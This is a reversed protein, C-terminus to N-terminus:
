GRAVALASLTGRSLVPQAAPSDGILGLTAIICALFILIFYDVGPSASDFLSELVIQKRTLTLTRAESIWARAHKLSVQWWSLQAGVNRQPDASANELVNESIKKHNKQNM